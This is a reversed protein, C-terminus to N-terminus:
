IIEDMEVTFCIHFWVLYTNIMWLPHFIYIFLYIFLDMYQQNVNNSSFSVLMNKNYQM